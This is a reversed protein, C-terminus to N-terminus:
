TIIVSPKRVLSSFHSLQPPTEQAPSLAGCNTVNKIGALCRHLDVCISVVLALCLYNNLRGVEFRQRVAEGALTTVNIIIGGLGNVLRRELRDLLAGEGREVGKREARDTKIWFVIGSRRVVFALEDRM